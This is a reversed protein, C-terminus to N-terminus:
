PIRIINEGHSFLQLMHVHNIFCYVKMSWLKVTWDCSASLFLHSMDLPGVARHFCVSSVQSTHALDTLLYLHLCYYFFDQLGEFIQYETAQPTAATGHRNIKFGLRLKTTTQMHFLKYFWM